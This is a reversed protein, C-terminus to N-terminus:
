FSSQILKMARMGRLYNDLKHRSLRMLAYVLERCKDMFNIWKQGYLGIYFSSHRKTVRGYEKVRAVYNQAGKKNIIEGKITSILYPFSILIVLSIFRQGVM